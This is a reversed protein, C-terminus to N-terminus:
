KTGTGESMGVPPEKQVQVVVPPAEPLRTALLLGLMVWSWGNFVLDIGVFLGIVFDSSEPWERWLLAGLAFTVVGNLLAWTWGTFREVVAYVTRVAGVALFVVALMLTLAAAGRGPHDILLGGLILYLFGTLLHLLFGRWTRGFFANVIEFTGGALLLCGFVLVTALTAINTAGIALGGVIILGWGLCLFWPWAKRLRRAEEVNLHVPAPQVELSM